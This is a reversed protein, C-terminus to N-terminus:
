PLNPVSNLATPFFKKAAAGHSTNLSVASLPPFKPHLMMKEETRSDRTRYVVVLKMGRIWTAVRKQPARHRIDIPARTKSSLDVMDIEEGDLAFDGM